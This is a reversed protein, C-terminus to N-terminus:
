CSGQRIGERSSYRCATRTSCCEVAVSLSAIPFGTKCQQPSSASCHPFVARFARGVLLLGIPERRERWGGWEKHILFVVTLKQLRMVFEFYKEKQVLAALFVM